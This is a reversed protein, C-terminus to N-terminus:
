DDFPNFPYTKVKGSDVDNKLELLKELFEKSYTDDLGISAWFWDYCEQEPSESSPFCYNEYNSTMLETWVVFNNNWTTLWSPLM